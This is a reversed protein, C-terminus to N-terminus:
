IAPTDIHVRQEVHRARAVDLLPDMDVCGGYLHVPIIAKVRPHRELVAEVQSVDMQCTDEEVDVFVARAGVRAIAGATAFFTYPVTLVEDGPGIELAMLALVLADTGSACGIAYPTSCYAAIQRELEAVEEGLIFRQSDILRTVGALIEDRITEHQARLDLLPITRGATM